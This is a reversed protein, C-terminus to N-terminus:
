FTLTQGETLDNKSAEHANLEIIYHGSACFTKPYSKPSVSVEIHTVKKRHDAWIIDIPFQMDKMWFCRELNTPYAFLMGTNRPLHTRGSLGQKQLEPTSAIELTYSSGSLRLIPKAHLSAAIAIVFIALATTIYLVPRKRALKTKAIGNSPM